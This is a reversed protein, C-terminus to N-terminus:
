IRWLKKLKFYAASIRAGYTASEGREKANQYYVDASPLLKSCVLHTIGSQPGIHQRYGPELHRQSVANRPTVYYVDASPLLKSCVLHTIGSQPGIHQRYGPELHRQSVANRPTVYYVDASPLLKSCVLHTIGLHPGIHQRYGPELHRQSVAKRVTITTCTLLLCFNVACLIHLAQSHALISGIDTPWYAASIRAGSTASEGSEKCNHYYVDAIPLLKSCVLHTIGSQPGIHQRYGPELHRQSVANRPTVTTCTLVLCFNVSEKFNHYYVDAIPLLKSCVLHTIGSQPGSHQRYGPELHRQSVANRPTVTTCTLVLCFNVSEKFNHYYVDASPLPKSCELHTLVSQPGIHQRYGPELHRQSLANRPTITPCTLVLCFNVACLLLDQSGRDKAGSTNPNQVEEDFRLYELHPHHLSSSYVIFKYSPSQIVFLKSDSTAASHSWEINESNMSSARALEVM